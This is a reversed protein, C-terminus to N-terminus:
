PHGGALQRYADLLIGAFDVPQVSGKTTAGAKDELFRRLAASLDEVSDSRFLRCATPRSVCDSALAEVGLAEAERLSIADGDTRTPRVLLDAAPLLSELSVARTVLRVKGGLAGLLARVQEAQEVPMNEEPVLALLGLEPLRGSLPTLAELMLDLGYTPRGQSLGWHSAMFLLAPSRSRLWACLEPEAPPPRLAPLFAPITSVRPHLGRERVKRADEEKVCVVQDVAGLMWKLWRPGPGARDVDVHLTFLSPGPLLRECLGMVLLRHWGTLHWHRVHDRSHRLLAFPLRLIHTKVHGPRSSGFPSLVRAEHGQALLYQEMREVHSAIGGHPPPLPGILTIRM